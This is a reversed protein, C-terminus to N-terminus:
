QFDADSLPLVTFPAVPTLWGTPYAFSPNNPDKTATTSNDPAMLLCYVRYEIDESMFQSHGDCMTVIFGGPHSSSPRGNDYDDAPTFGIQKNLLQGTPPNGATGWTPGIGSPLVTWTIAQWWSYGNQGAIQPPISEDPSPRVPLVTPVSPAAGVAGSVPPAIWDLADLNESLMLTKGTGDHGSIYSLDTTVITARNGPTRNFVTPTFTDFFVGNAQYDMPLGTVAAPRDRMGANVVYSLPANGSTTNRSPCVLNSVKLSGLNNPFLTNWTNQQFLQYLNNQEIFPLMPPVWGVSYGTAPPQESFLPPFKDKQTTYGFIAKGLQQQNNMCSNRRGAERARQVAPILLGVLMAIIAIVVLLEVLTFGASHPRAARASHRGAIHSLM